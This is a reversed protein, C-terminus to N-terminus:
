DEKIIEVACEPCIIACNSCGTCIDKGKIEVFNMGAKNIKESQEISHKPCYIICLKCGKCKEKNIKVTFKVQKAGKPSTGSREASM